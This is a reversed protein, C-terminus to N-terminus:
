GFEIMQTPDKKERHKKVTKINPLPVPPPIRVQDTLITAKVVTSNTIATLIEGMTSQPIQAPNVYEGHYNTVDQGTYLAVGDLEVYGVPPNYICQYKFTIRLMEGHPTTEKQIATISLNNNVTARPMKEIVDTKRESSMKTYHIGVIPM